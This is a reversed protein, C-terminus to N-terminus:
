KDKDRHYITGRLGRQTLHDSIAEVFAVSRHHGGTCGIAITLQTKGERIYLPILFDLLDFLKKRLQLAQTSSFVYEYVVQDTGRLTRLNEMYFPNPLCRVDLVFDSELPLGHKFGFSMITILLSERERPLFIDTIRSQLTIRDMNTTDIYYDAMERAQGLAEEEMTIATALSTEKNQLPHRRRTEKYRNLLIDQRCDLFLLRFSTGLAALSEGMNKFSGGLAQSRCDAVVAMRQPRPDGAMAQGVTAAVLSLPLNDICYWGMDEMAHIVVSKGAGSRGTVIILEM